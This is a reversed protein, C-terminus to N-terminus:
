FSHSMYLIILVWGLQFGFDIISVCEVFELSMQKLTSWVPLFHLSLAEEMVTDSSYFISKQIFKYM